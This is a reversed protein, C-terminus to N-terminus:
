RGHDPFLGIVPEHGPRVPLIPRIAPKSPQAAVLPQGGPAPALWRTFTKAEAEALNAAFVVDAAPRGRRAYAWRRLTNAEFGFGLHVVLEAAGIAEPGLGAMRLVGWLILEAALGGLALWVHRHRLFWLSPVLFAPWSFGDRVLDAADLARPDGPEAFPAVHLTYSASM